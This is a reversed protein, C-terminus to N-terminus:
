SLQRRMERALWSRAFSWRRKVTRPSLGLQEAIEDVDHRGFVRLEVIRALEADATALAALADDLAVLEADRPAAAPISEALECRRAADRRAAGRRRASDVLVRRMATVALALFREHSLGVADSRRAIRLWAEHVLATPQLTHGRREGRLLHRAAARLEEHVRPRWLDTTM